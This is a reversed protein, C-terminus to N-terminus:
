RRRRRGHGPQDDAWRLLVAVDALSRLLDNLHTCTGTSRLDRRVLRAPRGGPHGSWGPPRPRPRPASPRRCSGPTPTWPWSAHGHRRDVQAELSYEHLVSGSGDAEAYADRFMADVAAVSGGASLTVDTRRRRRVTGPVQEALRHWALPDRPDSWPPRPPASARPPGARDHALGAGDPGPRGLRRLHRGHPRRLRRAPGRPRHGAPPRLGSILTTAVVDDLLMFLLDARDADLGPLTALAKRLSGRLPLGVLPALDVLPPTAEVARVVMDPATEVRVSQEVLALHRGDAGTLLDRGRGVLVLADEDTWAGDVSTTRRM